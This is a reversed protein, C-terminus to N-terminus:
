RRERGLEAIREDTARPELAARQVVRELHSLVQAPVVTLAHATSRRECAARRCTSPITALSISTSFPMAQFSGCSCRAASEAAQACSHSALSSLRM